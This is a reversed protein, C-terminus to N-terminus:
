ECNIENEPDDDITNANKNLRCDVAAEKVANEFQKIIKNKTESLKRIYQDVTIKQDPHMAIYVYVKVNREEEPLDIHSCFRSARGVVQELRSQNWYPELVHVFRVAKLTVGEKISPSGLVIKLKDGYLNDVRNFVDRIEDKTEASEDGSWIAFRKKELEM